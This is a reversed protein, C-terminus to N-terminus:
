NVKGKKVLQWQWYSYGILVILMPFIGVLLIGFAWAGPFFSIIAIFAALVYFLKGGFQHTKEWVVESHLTWPFRIGITYNKKVQPLMWGIFAFLAAIGLTVWRGVNIQNGLGVYLTMLYLGGMFLIFVLKFWYYPGAFLEINSKLPDLLPLAALLIYLIAILAPFFWVAFAKSSWGDVQGNVGWHTPVRDPLQPYFYIGAALTLFILAILFIEKKFNFLKM